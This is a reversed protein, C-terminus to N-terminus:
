TPQKWQIQESLQKMVGDVSDSWFSVGGNNRVLDLFSYQEETPTEGTDKTEIALMRGDRLQGIIDSMGTERKQHESMYHGVTVWGGPAKFKGTTIVMAWAVDKHVLLLDMTGSQVQIEAM